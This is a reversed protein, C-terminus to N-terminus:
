LWHSYNLVMNRNLVLSLYLVSNWDLVPSCELDCSVCCKSYLQINSLKLIHPRIAIFNPMHIVLRMICIQYFINEIYQSVFEFDYCIYIDCDFIICHRIDCYFFIVHHRCKIM